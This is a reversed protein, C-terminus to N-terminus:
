ASESAPIRADDSTVYVWAVTRDDNHDASSAEYGSAELKAVLVNAEDRPLPVASVWYSDIMEFKVGEITKTKMPKNRQQASATHAAARTAAAILDALGWGAARLARVVLPHRLTNLIM